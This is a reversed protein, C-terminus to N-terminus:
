KKKGLMNGLKGMMPKAGSNGLGPKPATKPAPTSPKPPTTPTRNAGITLGSKPKEAQAKARMYNSEAHTNREDAKQLEKLKANHQGPGANSVGDQARGVEAITNKFQNLAQKANGTPSTGQKWPKKNNMQSM